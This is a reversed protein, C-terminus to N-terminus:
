LSRLILVLEAGLRRLKRRWTRPYFWRWGPRFALVGRKSVTRPWASKVAAMELRSLLLSVAARPKLVM